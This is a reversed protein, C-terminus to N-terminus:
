KSLEKKCNPCKYFPAGRAIDRQKTLVDIQESQQKVTDVLEGITQLMEREHKNDWNMRKYKGEIEEVRGMSM